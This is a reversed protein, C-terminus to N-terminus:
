LYKEIRHRMGIKDPVYPAQLATPGANTNVEIIVPGNEGIAVDWGYYGEIGDGAEMLMQKLEEFYPIKFGKIPEGTDPHKTYVNNNFDVGDTVIVGTDIDIDTMIGGSHLNDVYKDGSGMRLGAYVINVKGNVTGPINDYSVITGVRLTNVSKLSFKQMDPHQKFFGEILGDPLAKIQEYTEKINSQDFDFVQVGKGGSRTTPKYIVKGISGFKECFVDYTLNESTCWPRGMYKDFKACFRDKNMFLDIIDQNKNYKARLANVDGKTFYTHWEEEPVEWFKYVAFMEASAGVEDWAKNMKESTLERSWGCAEMVQKMYRERKAKHAELRKEYNEYAALLESDDYNYLKGRLIDNYTAFTQKKITNVKQEAQEYPWGTISAVQNICNQKREKNKAKQALIEDYAEKQKEEPVTYFEHNAYDKFSIGFENRAKEMKAKADKRSWGTAKVTKTIYKDRKKKKSNKIPEINETYKQMVQRSSKGEAAYPTSLLVIGPMNNVEILEPGNVSIAMDWGLYGELKEETCTETILRLVEEYYPVKFGRIKTKTVPHETFVNGYQDTADTCICGTEKDIVAVMGGSHFNDVISKGGGIRLSTYAIDFMKGDSTVPMDNSSLTVVRITNVSSDTLKNMDPHQKVFEEVVGEPWLSVKDYVEDINDQNVAISEVGFGKHGRIPKYIIKGSDKFLEIFKERSTYINVCWPRKVCKSFHQNTLAKNCLIGFLERDVDFKKMLAKSDCSLFIEAQQEPTFEYFHYIFFEKVACGTRERAESVVSITKEKSWGTVDMIKCYYENIQRQKEREVQNQHDNFIQVHQEPPLKYLRLDVYNYNSIGKEKAVRLEDLVKERSWGTETIITQIRRERLEHSAKKKSVLMKHMRMQEHMTYNCYKNIQYEKFSIGLEKKSKQMQKYAYDRDWGSDQMVLQIRHERKKYNEDFHMKYFTVLKKRMSKPLCRGIKAALSNKTNKNNSM